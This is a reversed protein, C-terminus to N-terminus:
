KKVLYPPYHLFAYISLPTDKFKLKIRGDQPIRKEAIDLKSMIKLRAALRAGLKDPPSAIEQLVGDVRFRVRYQKEYPEFHIDSARQRVARLLMQNIFRM